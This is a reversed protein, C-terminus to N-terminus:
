SFSEWGPQHDAADPSVAIVVHQGAPLRHQGPPLTGTAQKSERSYHISTQARAPPLATLDLTAPNTSPNHYLVYQKNDCQVSLGRVGDATAIRTVKAEGKVWAPRIEVVCYFPKAATYEKLTDTAQSQAKSDRFILEAAKSIRVM